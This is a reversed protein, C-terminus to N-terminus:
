RLDHEVVVTLHQLHDLVVLAQVQHGHKPHLGRLLGGHGRHRARQLHQGAGVEAAGQLALDTNDRICGGVCEEPKRACRGRACAHACM